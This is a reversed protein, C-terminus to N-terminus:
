VKFEAVATFVDVTLLENLNNIVTKLASLVTDAECLRREPTMIRTPLM